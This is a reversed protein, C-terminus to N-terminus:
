EKREKYFRYYYIKKFPNFLHRVRLTKEKSICEVIRDYIADEWSLNPVLHSYTQWRYYKTNFYTVCSREWVKEEKNPFVTMKYRKIVEEELTFTVEYKENKKDMRFTRFAPVEIEKENQIIQKQKETLLRRIKRNVEEKKVEELREELKEMFYDYKWFFNKEKDHMKQYSISNFYIEVTEDLEYEQIRITAVWTPLQQHYKDRVFKLDVMEVNM